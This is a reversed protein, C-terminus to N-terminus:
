ISKPVQGGPTCLGLVILLSAFGALLIAWLPHRTFYAPVGVIPAPVKVVLDTVSVSWADSGVAVKPGVSPCLKSLSEDAGPSIYAVVLMLAGVLVTSHRLTEGSFWPVPVVAVDQPLAVREMITWSFDASPEIGSLQVLREEVRHLEMLKACAPCQKAHRLADQLWQPDRQRLLTKDLITAIEACNM